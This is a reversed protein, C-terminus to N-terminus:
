LVDVVGGATCEAVERGQNLVNNENPPIFQACRGFQDCEGEDNGVTCPTGANGFVESGAGTIFDSFDSQRADIKNADAIPGAFAQGSTFVIAISLIVPFHM